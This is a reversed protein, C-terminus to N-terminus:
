VAVAREPDLHGYLLELPPDASSSFMHVRRM